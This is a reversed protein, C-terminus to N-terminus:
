RCLGATLAANKARMETRIGYIVLSLLVLRRLNPLKIEKRKKYSYKTIKIM